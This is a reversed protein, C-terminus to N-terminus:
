GLKGSQLGKRKLRNNIIPYSFVSVLIILTGLYFGSSMSETKPFFIVAVLIGYVPEMNITLNVTFASIRKLLEVAASYAYVTCLVALVLLLGWDQLNPLVFEAGEGLFYVKYFPIFCGVGICAGIMEYFTIMYPNYLQTFRSNLVAFIASLLASIIALSLGLANNFESQFIIYLGVIVVLGIFVEFLRVKRSTLMPEILSTWFTTTAMGVLCISINAVRAAEFFLVWHAGIILGTGLTRLLGKKGINFQRKRYRLLLALGIAALLTRYFVVEAAPVEILKGLIATFGWIFVIFHLELYDKLTAQM